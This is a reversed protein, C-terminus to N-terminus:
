LTIVNVAHLGRYESREEAEFTTPVLITDSFTATPSNFVTVDTTSGNTYTYTTKAYQYSYTEHGQCGTSVTYDTAVSICIGNHNTVMGSPCCLAMIQGPQLAHKMLSRKDACDYVWDPCKSYDGYSYDALSGSTTLARSADRAAMGITEWGSPCYLGPSFYARYPTEYQRRLDLYEEFDEETIGRSLSVILDVTSTCKPPQTFTTSLPGYNSFVFTYYSNTATIATM